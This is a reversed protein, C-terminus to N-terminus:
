RSLSTALTFAISSGSLLRWNYYGVYVVNEGGHLAADAGLRTANPDAAFRQGGVWLYLPSGSDRDWALDFRFTGATPAVIRILRCPFCRDPGVAYSMDMHTLKPVVATEGATIRVIRQMTMFGTNDPAIDGERAEYGDKDFRLRIGALLALTYNGAVDTLTSRGSAQELVRVGPVAGQGPERVSGTVAFTGAPTVGIHVSIHGWNAYTADIQAAGFGVATVVGSSSVTAVSENESTWGAESTVDRVTKDPFTAVATLQTTEGIAGLSTRGNITFTSPNSSSLATPAVSQYAANSSGGCGVDALVIVVCFLPSARTM